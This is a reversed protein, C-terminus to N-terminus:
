LTNKRKASLRKFLNKVKGWCSKLYFLGGIICALLFQTIYSGSGPDLYAHVESRDLFFLMIFILYRM